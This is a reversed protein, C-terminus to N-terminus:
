GIRVESLLQRLRQKGRAYHIRATGLRLGMVAAAAEISMEQYFVLHLIQRQRSSLRVLARSLLAQEDRAITEEEPNRSAIPGLGLAVRRALRSASIWSRRREGAATRRIVGFLWTKFASRGDFRAEGSLVKVYSMQLVEEALARDRRCCAMAWGFADAHMSALTEDLSIRTPSLGIAEM